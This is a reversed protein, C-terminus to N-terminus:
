WVELRSKAVVWVWSGARHRESVESRPTRVVTAVVSDHLVCGCFNTVRKSRAHAGNAYTFNLFGTLSIMRARRHACTARTTNKALSEHGRRMVPTDRTCRATLHFRHIQWFEYSVLPKQIIEAHARPRSIQLNKTSFGNTKKLHKHQFAQLCLTNTVIKSSKPMSARTIVKYYKKCPIIAIQNQLFM